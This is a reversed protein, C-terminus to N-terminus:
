FAGHKSCDAQPFARYQLPLALAIIGTIISNSPTVRIVSLLHICRNFCGHRSLITGVAFVWYGGAQAIAYLFDIAGNLNINQLMGTLLM